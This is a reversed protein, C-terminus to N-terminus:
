EFVSILYGDITTITCTKGGWPQTVVETIKKWGKSTIYEYMKEIRDVQMFSIVREESEGYFMQIGTFPALHAMEVEPLIEFVVGYCGEGVENREVINSYWGLTDEFWRATRDMDKTFYVPANEKVHYGKESFRSM